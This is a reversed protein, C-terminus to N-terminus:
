MKIGEQQSLQSLTKKIRLATLRAAGNAYWCERMIKAMVRLAECSQWRNPINPRLKQECVVKRMEEVSPDSPVLDYYPLQYDEHIGGISCRRAIEWFVLGMAYIDARKFSEFHKMNISDDLVEPAMYRKTGVRHNPAIDITDTASDHRVALGLDAICCTGNKKVLINKSKLDRHAIAPKGKNDAAIFGLINEHRLMVTQYIEAERFWSREERSSFIKVAVEEGRWKGRWVEGFRGKGISEQLVITRAITRQVLLPLGSGSGSTTMDYILDKLTTGESIFPRDLSPDEESPVRHHIVTRNHCLYLILMLSICVFCVPGAIVAALEVPGLNSAPKGPTPGPTPIPLEIKNCFDRDCCHPVTIVGDRTSPACVFPRDRPILDIEAICM